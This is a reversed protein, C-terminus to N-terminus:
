SEGSEKRSLPESALMEASELLRLLRRPRIHGHRTEIIVTPRAVQSSAPPPSGVRVRNWCYECRVVMEGPRFPLPAGCSPCKMSKADNPVQYSM